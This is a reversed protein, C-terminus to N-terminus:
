LGIGAGMLEMSFHGKCGALIQACPSLIFM